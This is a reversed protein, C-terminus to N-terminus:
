GKDRIRSQALRATGYAAETQASRVVPIDRAATTSLVRSRIQMWATNDAGGGATCVGTLPTAGLSQLLRYGEAEIRAISELLGHLFEVSSDPRPELRPPLKADNIPFREGPQLLPYYDLPSARDSAIQQSLSRLEAPSFFQKLVAGGTNSAGGVLWLNGLKHSYIGYGAHDVRTESLLKLVLTSGLSTVATGPTKAGSALFAAISDTTGACVICAAPLGFRSAISPLVPAIPEGPTVVEPLQFPLSLTQLWNPYRLEGVDYGLKLANHDDSIGLRGHLLFALWDAQHLFYPQRDEGAGFGQNVWWLLKAFSSTASIVTHGAPVIAKVQDLVSVGRDDSYLLPQDLPNGQRNCILVTSSTGNIAIATLNQRVAAPIQELLDFLTSRWTTAWDTAADFPVSAAARIEGSQNIVIARAGSTGFDIGLASDATM